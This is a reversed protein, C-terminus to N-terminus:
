ASSPWGQSVCFANGEGPSLELLHEDIQGCILRFTLGLSTAVAPVERPMRTRTLTDCIQSVKPECGGTATRWRYPRAEVSAANVGFNQNVRLLRGGPTGM